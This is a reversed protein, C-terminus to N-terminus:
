GRDQARLIQRHRHGAAVPLTPSAGNNESIRKKSLAAEGVSKLGERGGNSNQSAVM